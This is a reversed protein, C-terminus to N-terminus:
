LAGGLLVTEIASQRGVWSKGIKRLVGAAVLAPVLRTLWLKRSSGPVLDLLSRVSWVAVSSSVRSDM